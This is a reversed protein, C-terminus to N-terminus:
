LEMQICLSDSCALPICDKLLVLCLLLLRSSGFLETSGKPTIFVLVRTELYDGVVLDLTRHLDAVLLAKLLAM